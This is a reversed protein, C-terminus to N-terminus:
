CPSFARPGLTYTWQPCLEHAQINLTEMVQDTVKIGTPYETTVLQAQVTRGTQTKTDELYHVVRDFSRLPCGGRKALKM